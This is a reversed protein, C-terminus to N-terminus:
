PEILAEPFIMRAPKRPDYLVFVPQKADRHRGALDIEVPNTRRVTRPGRGGLASLTIKYVTQKNVRMMTADVALVDVEALLGEVLLHRADRYRRVFSIFLAAGVLPFLGAFAGGWGILDLRGGEICAVTSDNRLYRVTVSEGVNWRSGTTYCQAVHRMEGAPTFAFTTEMVRQKNVSTNSREVATVVGAVTGAERGSLRWQDWARWPFAFTVMMTGILMFGLGVAGGVLPAQQKRAVQTVHTPVLRPPSGALLQAIDDATVKV